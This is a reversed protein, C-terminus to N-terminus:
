VAHRGKLRLLKWFTTGVKELGENSNQYGSLPNRKNGEKSVGHGYLIM